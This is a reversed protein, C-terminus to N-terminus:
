ILYDQDLKSMQLLLADDFYKSVSVDENLGKRRRTKLTFERALAQGSAPQLPKLAIGKDLPDGPVIRWHDFAQQVSAQGQTKLRIDVELGFYDITPVIASLLLLPTGAIPREALIHGRRRGIVASVVSLCSELTTVELKAIPEMLRPAATLFASYCARRAAPIIQGATRSIPEGDLSAQTLKFLTGRIPEDCLPGERTAWQFGQEIYRRVLSLTKPNTEDPITDNRLVNPSSPTPGFCWISSAALPDWGFHSELLQYARDADSLKGSEIGSCVGDELIDAAVYLRNKGNSTNAFCLLSSSESVTECFTVAPDSVRIEVQAYLERLEYMLCDLFVEGTGLIVHEGSEEVKTVCSVYIKSLRRLGEVMKPLDAPKLPEVAIKVTSPVTPKLPKLAYTLSEDSAILTASKNIVHDLTPGTLWVINGCVVSQCQIEYRGVALSVKTVQQFSVDEDDRESAFRDGLVQVEQKERLTGSLIRALVKFPATESVSHMKAAQVILAGGSDAAAISQAVKDDQPGMYYNKVIRRAGEQPDPLHAVCMEVFGQCIGFFSQSVILLLEKRDIEFLQKSTLPPLALEFVVKRLSETDECMCTTILKYLPEIVFHVFTRQSTQNTSFTRKDADYYVNGWLRKALASASFSAKPYRRRYMESFTQLSFAFGFESSAFLVNGLDPSFVMKDSHATTKESVLLNVQEIVHAIKYYADNAPIKLELVLRDLKNIVIVFKVDARLLSELLRSVRDTVGEVVDIVVAAGDVLRLSADVEADFDSHGPTDLLHFCYQKGKLNPLLLSVPTTSISIGRQREISSTDLYNKAIVEGLAHSEAVLHDMFSTKGHHLAGLVAVNRVLTPVSAVQRLYIEDYVTKLPQELWYSVKQVKEPAIIPEEVGQRDEEEVLVSVKAGYTAEATPYYKEVDLREGM